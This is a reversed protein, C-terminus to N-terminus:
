PSQFFAMKEQETPQHGAAARARVCGGGVLGWSRWATLSVTRTTGDWVEPTLCRPQNHKQSDTHRHTYTYAHRHTQTDTNRHPQTCTHARPRTHAHTPTTGGQTVSVAVGASKASTLPRRAARPPHRTCVGKWAPLTVTRTTGDWVTPTLCRPQKHKQTGTYIHTRTHTHRESIKKRRPVSRNEGTNHRRPYCQCRRGRTQCFDFASTCHPSRIECFTHIM